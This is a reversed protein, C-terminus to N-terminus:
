TSNAVPVNNPPNTTAAICNSTLLIAYGREWGEELTFPELGM